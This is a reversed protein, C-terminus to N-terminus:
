IKVDLWELSEHNLLKPLTGDFDEKLSQFVRWAQVDKGVMLLTVIRNTYPVFLEITHYMSCVEMLRDRPAMGLMGVLVDQGEIISKRAAELFEEKMGVRSYTSFSPSELVKAMARTYNLNLIHEVTQEDPIEYKM